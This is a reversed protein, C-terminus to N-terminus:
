VVQPITGNWPVIIAGFQAFAYAAAGNYPVGNQFAIFSSNWTGWWIDTLAGHRGKSGVTNSFLGIPHLIWEQNLDNPASYAAGLLTGNFNEGTWFLSFNSTARGQGNATSYLNSTTTVMTNSTSGLWLGHVPNTWGTVAGAPVEIDLFGCCVGGTNASGYSCILVRTIAGDTSMMAHLKYQVSGSTFIGWSSNAILQVGDAPVTPDTTSNGGTFGTVPSYWVTINWNSTGTCTILLQFNSLVGTQKLVIWSHANGNAAWTLAAASGFNASSVVTWPNSGFTILSQYLQWLLNQADTVNTGTARLLQNVNFQWTKVLSPYDAM